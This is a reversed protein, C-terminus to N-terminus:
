TPHSACAERGGYLKEQEVERTCVQTDSLASSRALWLWVERDPNYEEDVRTYDVQLRWEGRSSSQHQQHGGVTMERMHTSSGGRQKSKFAVVASGVNRETKAVCHQHVTSTQQM